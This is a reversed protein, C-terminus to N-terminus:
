SWVCICLAQIYFLFKIKMLSDKICVHLSIVNKLLEKVCIQLLSGYPFCEVEPFDLLSLHNSNIQM